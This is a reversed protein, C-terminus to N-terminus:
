GLISGMQFIPLYMAVILGGVLLGIIVMIIPEMLDTLGDVAHTVQAEYYDAVKNLMQELSGSEEGISVMQVALAPFLQSSRMSRELRQGAAVQQRMQYTATEFVHNDTAAATAGLAELLPVGAAYTTALTRCFRAIIAQYAISGFIPLKLIAKDLWQNFGLSRKQAQRFAIVAAITLLLFIPWLKQMIHSLTVVFQTFAPLQSGMSNYLDAFVPVVKLLLIISVIMAVLMVALPYKIAKKLKIKLLENNEKYDAIRELLTDLTGSHEAASVLACFLDDFQKPHARLSDELSMGTELQQKVRLVLQKMSPKDLAQAILEFAHVIPVGAKTMTALQRVFLSIDLATIKKQRRWLAKPKRRIRQTVIGQKRLQAKALAMSSSTLIGKVKMGQPNIGQYVFELMKLKTRNRVPSM